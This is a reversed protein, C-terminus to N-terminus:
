RRTHEKRSWGSFLDGDPTTHCCPHPDFREQGAWRDSSKEQLCRRGFRGRVLRASNGLSDLLASPISQIVRRSHTCLPDPHSALRTKRGIARAIPLLHLAASRGLGRECLGHPTICLMGHDKLVKKSWRAFSKTKFVRKPLSEDM